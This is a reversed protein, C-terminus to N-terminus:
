TENEIYFLEFMIKGAEAGYAMLIGYGVGGLWAMGGAGFVTKWFPLRQPIRNALGETGLFMIGLRAILWMVGAAKVGNLASAGLQEYGSYNGSGM